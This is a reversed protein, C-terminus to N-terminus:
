RSFMISFRGQVDHYTLLYTFGAKRLRKMWNQQVLADSLFMHGSTLMGNDYKALALMGHEGLHNTEDKGITYNIQKGLVEEVLRLYELRSIGEGTSLNYAEGKEGQECILKIAEVGDRVDMFERKANPNWLEFPTEKLAALIVQSTFYDHPRGPGEQNFPRIIIGDYKKALKEVELKTQIYINGDKKIESNEKLNEGYNYVQSTSMVCTRIGFEKAIQLINKTGQVNVARALDPKQECTAPNAIGALHVIHNPQREIITNRLKDYDRIDCDQSDIGTVNMLQKMLWKGIFGNAGTILYQNNIWDDVM